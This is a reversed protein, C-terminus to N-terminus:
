QNRPLDKFPATKENGPEKPLGLVRESIINRQIQDTGGYIPPAQAWLAMGTVMPLFPNGTAETIAAAEDGGKYSHLMGSAGVIRLSLDRSLRTMDSMSLKAINAMGPLDVGAKKAAKARLNSFRAIEGLTHLRVLDQRIHPDTNTGNGRALDGLLKANGGLGPAGKAKASKSKAPAAPAKVFDGCRRDLHGAVTGPMAMGGAASGGGAGLGSREHMLTTNTVAWGNNRDGIIASDLVRADTLFVENFMAHGTMEVLPRVEVGPQHMDISFWTIGQHKPVDFDTRAILMGMDAVHGLSTWVKQGNVIWEDGDREARCTLGALDSGAGPESFLQCWAAEGTVIARVYNDIQEQTGHNAITPAALLLGLGGPAALAGFGGIEGQVRVADNRSLGRGYANTPLGPASWGALGLRSWWERVTMEPDWNEELFTRLEDLVDETTAPETVTM